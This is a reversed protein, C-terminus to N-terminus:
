FSRNLEAIETISVTNANPNPTIRLQKYILSCDTLSESYVTFQIHVATSVYLEKYYCFMIQSLIYVPVCLSVSTHGNCTLYSNRLASVM